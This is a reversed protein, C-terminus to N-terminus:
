TKYMSKVSQQGILENCKGVGGLDIEGNKSDPFRNIMVRVM